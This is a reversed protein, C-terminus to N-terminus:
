NEWRSLRTSQTVQKVEGGEQWYVTVAVAVGGSGDDTLQVCRSYISAEAMLSTANCDVENLGDAVVWNSPLKYSASSVEASFQTWSYDRYARMLEVGEQSLEVALVRDKAVRSNKVSISTVALLAVLLLSMVGIAVMVEILSQGKSKM